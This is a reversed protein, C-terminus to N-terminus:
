AELPLSLQSLQTPKGPAEPPRRVLRIATAFTDPERSPDNAYEPYARVRTLEAREIAAFLGGLNHGSVAVQWEGIEIRITAPDSYSWEASQFHTWPLNQQCQGDDFTVGAANPEADFYMKPKRQVNM